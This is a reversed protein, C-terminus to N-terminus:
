RGSSSSSPSSPRCRTAPSASFRNAEVDGIIVPKGPMITVGHVLVQGLEEIVPQAYDESGASSGGITLVMDFDGAVADAVTQRILEPDDM